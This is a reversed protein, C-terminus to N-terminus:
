TRKFKQSIRNILIDLEPLKMQIAIAGFILVTVVTALGLQITLLFLNQSGILRECGWSLGYGSLGAISTAVLLRLFTSGWEKLPLGNLRRDLIILFVTMSIFNVTVTALILGPAKFFGIFLYDLIANILINIISIKFPTEGDGLAYFVRVLVDRGLYFFMGFGYAMLLSAVLQTADSKFAGREYILRAIPTALALFIASFPLMTLATLILSQRIRLKLEQWNEPAALKSFIPLYPVLIINSIIGLPTQIIFNAYRMAAAAGAISSAFFLATALNIQLMGSSLTAPIMVKLVDRVGPIRWNFRLKLSGMGSQWQAIVQVIWQFISGAMTGGALVISGLYAYEPTTIKTGLQFWLLGLGGILALSSFLPSISPLWYQNSANLVGFGIGILGALLASPAMIRLQLIASAKSDPSLGPAMFSLLPDAFVILAITVLLLAGSVITTITEVLPAAESKNKKALVSVLANHFPGNIGGLLILFFSPIQYAYAYAEAVAGIGFAAGIAQERVLGFIKSIFTAIAVISAIRALSRSSKQNASV